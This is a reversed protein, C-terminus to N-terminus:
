IDRLEKRQAQTRREGRFSIVSTRLVDFRVRRRIYSVTNSYQEQKKSCLKEALAKLFKTAEKGAGGSCSFILPTFSGKEIELIRENYEKKKLDEHMNYVESVDKNWNTQAMPNIIRIDFFARSPNWLGLSSVDSRAGDAVNAGASLPQNKVPLLLPELKVDKCVEQLLNHITDRM